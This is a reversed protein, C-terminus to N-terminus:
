VVKTKIKKILSMTDIAGTTITPICKFRSIITKIMNILSLIDITGMTITSFCKFRSIMEKKQTWLKGILM